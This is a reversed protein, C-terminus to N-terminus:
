VVSPCMSFGPVAKKKCRTDERVPTDTAEILKRLHHSTSCPAGCPIPSPKLHTADHRRRVAMPALSCFLLGRRSGDSSRGTFHPMNNAKPNSSCRDAVGCPFGPLWTKSISKTEAKGRSSNTSYYNGSTCAVFLGLKEYKVEVCSHLV